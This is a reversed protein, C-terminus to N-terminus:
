RIYHYNYQHRISPVMSLCIHKADDHYYYNLQNIEVYMVNNLNMVINRPVSLIRDFYDWTNKGNLEFTPFIHFYEM